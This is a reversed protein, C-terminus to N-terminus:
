SLQALASGHFHSCMGVVIEGQAIVPAHRTITPVLSRVLHQPMELLYVLGSFSSMDVPHYFDKPKCTPAPCERTHPNNNRIGPFRFDLFLPDLGNIPGTRVIGSQTLANEDVVVRFMRARFASDGGERDLCDSVRLLSDRRGCRM